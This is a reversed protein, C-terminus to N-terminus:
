PPASFSVKQCLTVSMVSYGFKPVSISTPCFAVFGLQGGRRLLDLARLAVRAQAVGRRV